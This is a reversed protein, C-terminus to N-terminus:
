FGKNEFLVVTSKINLFVLVALQFASTGWSLSEM